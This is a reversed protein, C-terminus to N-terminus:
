AFWRLAKWSRFHAAFAMGNVDRVMLRPLRFPDTCARAGGGVICALDFGANQVVRVSTDNHAGYPYTFTCISQGTLKRLLDRSGAVEERQLDEDLEPLCPHSRTHAGIEILPSRALTRLEDENLMRHRACAAAAAPPVNPMESLLSDLVEPSQSRLRAGLAATRARRFLPNDAIRGALDAPRAIQLLSHELRDWWFEKGRLIDTAVFVTAPLKYKELLPLATELNDFYGDDFTIAVGRPTRLLASLPVVNERALLALHQEFHEPSVCLRWPDYATRHVRHYMLIAGTLRLASTGRASRLPM